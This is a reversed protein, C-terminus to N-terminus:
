LIGSAGLAKKKLVLVRPRAGKKSSFGLGARYIEPIYFETVNNKGKDEYLVGMEELIRVTAQNLNLDESKFPVQKQDSSLNSLGEVWGKFDPYEQTAEDVKKKSCPELARRIAQPSLLRSSNWKESQVERSNEIAENASYFLFRVIDRAQLRGKFDTLAAFIWNQTYAEKSKDAGLKKGWLTELKEALQERSLNYVENEHADILQSQSCIWYVLRLFSDANWQLDYQRYLSEFQGINQPYIYRLFDRRLLIIIGLSPQRLENLRRPLDLLARLANQSQINSSILTFIDELGDFALTIKVDLNKLYLNIDSLSNINDGNMGLSESIIKIWFKNWSSENFSDITITEIIHDHIDSYIFDKLNIGKDFFAQKVTNRAKNIIDRAEDAINISELFPFIYTHSENNASEEGSVRNVFNEWYVSRAIQLYTFTKGSGKAGISVVRPLEDKFTTALHKLPETVLLKEGKGSEAFEYKQCIDRLKRLSDSSENSNEPPSINQNLEKSLQNSAWEKAVRMLTTSQIKSQADAWSNVYLLEQAFETEQIDLRKTDLEGESVSSQVYASELRELTDSYVPLQKLEPTLFNIIVSPDFYKETKVDSECPALNSIQRLVLSTGSVSQESVSTVFFKQVRPDFIFPSSIESLGARLDIFIYEVQLKEGLQHLSNVCAWPNELRRAINEPLVPTDLLQEDELCAPLFYFTSKGFNRPSKQIEQAFVSMIEDESAQSYHYSELFDIFSVEPIQNELRDWYTLGPAELDADVVLIKIPQDIERSRELLAFLHATLNLTRGVGGKFSYFAFVEPKSLFPEPLYEKETRSSEDGSEPSLYRVEDWFPHIGKKKRHQDNDELFEIPLYSDGIDLRIGHPNEIFWEGFLEKLRLIIKDKIAISEEILGVEIADSFCQMRTIEEPISLGNDQFDRIFRQIDLWTLFKLRHRM